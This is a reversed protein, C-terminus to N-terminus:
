LAQQWDKLVRLLEEENPRKAIRVEGLDLVPGAAKESVCIFLLKHTDLPAVLQAFREAGKRSHILVCVTGKELATFAIPSLSEAPQPSYLGVFRVDFGASALETQLINGAATNAVHILHGTDPKTQEIVLQALDCSNGNANRAIEFGAAKAADYTAPGVCWAPLEVEACVQSFFRVGNASTFLIGACAKIPIPPVPNMLHLELAPSQIVELGLARVRQATEDAGPQARTIIVPISM